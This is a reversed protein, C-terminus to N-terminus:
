RRRRLADAVHPGFGLSAIALLVLGAGVLQHASPAPQDLLWFLAFAAVVGALVSTSRNVAVSFTNARADLFVLSGFLMVGESLAGLLVTELAVGSAPLDVFGARITSMLEGRGAWGLAALLAVSLTAATLQEEVLYRKTVAADATKAEASMIRLRVLYALLYLGIDVACGLSIAYGGREAFAVVLAALALGLGLWAFWRARRKAVLDVLPAILLVGGRMLLMVFVISVGEFTYALTTTLMIVAMCAGSAATSWTPWPLKLRGIELRSAYRWFGGLSFALLLVALASLNALPLLAAGPVGRELGPYAGSSLAKALASYPAYCCFYLAAFVWTAAASGVFTAREPRSRGPM